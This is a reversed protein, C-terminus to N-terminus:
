FSCKILVDSLSSELSFFAIVLFGAWFSKDEQLPLYTFRFLKHLGIIQDDNLSKISFRQKEPKLFQM